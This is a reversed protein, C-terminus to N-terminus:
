AADDYEMDGHDPYCCSFGLNDFRLHKCRTIERHNIIRICPSCNIPCYINFIETGNPIDKKDLTM